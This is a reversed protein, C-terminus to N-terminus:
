GAIAELSSAPTTSNRDALAVASPSGAFSLGSAIRVLMSFPM